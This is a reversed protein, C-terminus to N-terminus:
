KKSAFNLNTLVFVFDSFGINFLKRARKKKKENVEDERRKQQIDNNFKKELKV